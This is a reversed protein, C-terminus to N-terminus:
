LDDGIENSALNLIEVKSQNLWKALAYVSSSDIDSGILFLRSINTHPLAQAISELGTGINNFTLDLTHIATKNLVVAIAKAGEPGIKNNVLSLETLKNLKTPLFSALLKTEEDGFN